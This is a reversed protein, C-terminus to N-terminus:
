VEEARTEFEFGGIVRALLNYLACAIATAIYGVILYLLPFILLMLPPFAMPNGSQDMPAGFFNIILFVPVVFLLVLVASLIGVVKGNQHPSLRAIQKKM